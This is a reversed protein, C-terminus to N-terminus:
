TRDISSRIDRASVLRQGCRGAPGRGRSGCAISMPVSNSRRCETRHPRRGHQPLHAIKGTCLPVWASKRAIGPLDFRGMRGPIDSEAEIAKTAEPETRIRKLTERGVKPCAHDLTGLGISVDTGARRLVPRLVPPPVLDVAHEGDVRGLLSVAVSGIVPEPVGNCFVRQDLNEIRLRHPRNM